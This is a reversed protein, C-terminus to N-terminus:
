YNKLNLNIWFTLKGIQNGFKSIFVLLFKNPLIISLLFYLSTLIIGGLLSKLFILLIIISSKDRHLAFIFNRGGQIGRKFFWTLNLRKEDQIEYIIASDCFVISANQTILYNFFNSDEGGTLNFEPLFPPNRLLFLNRKVLTNGTYGENMKALEGDVRLKKKFYISEKIYIPFSDPIEYIVRGLVVDANYKMQCDMMSTIWNPAPYEDDDIFLVFDGSAVSVIKNRANSLGQLPQVCYIVSEYNAVIEKASENSDNDCVIVEYEYTTIQNIVSEICKKLLLPRKYTCILISIM